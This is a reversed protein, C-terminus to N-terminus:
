VLYDGPLDALFRDKHKGYLMTMSVMKHLNEPNM